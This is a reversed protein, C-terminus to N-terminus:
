AHSGDTQVLADYPAVFYHPFDTTLVAKDCSYLAKDYVRVYYHYPHDEANFQRKFRLLGEQSAWTGGFSYIDRGARLSHCMSEHILAELGHLNRQEWDTVPVVYETTRGRSLTLLGACRLGSVDAVTFRFDMTGQFLARGMWDFFTDNKATGSIAHMRHEHHQQFWHWDAADRSERVVLGAREAARINSRKRPAFLGIIGDEACDIRTVQGIRTVVHDPALTRAYLELRPAPDFLGSVVTMSRSGREQAYDGLALLLANEVRPDFAETPALVGGSSGFLPMSNVVRGLGLDDSIFFPLIAALKGDKEATLVLSEGGALERTLDIWPRALTAAADSISDVFSEFTDMEELRALSIRAGNTRM